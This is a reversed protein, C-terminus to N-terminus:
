HESFPPTDKISLKFTSKGEGKTHEIEVPPSSYTKRLGRLFGTLFQDIARDVAEGKTLRGLWYGAREGNSVIFTVVAGAGLIAALIVELWESSLVTELM